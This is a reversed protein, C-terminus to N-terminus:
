FSLNDFVIDMSSPQTKGTINANKNDNKIPAFPIQIENVIASIRVINYMKMYELYRLLFVSPSYEPNKM